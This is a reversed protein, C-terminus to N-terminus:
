ADSLGLVDILRERNSDWCKKCYLKQIRAFLTIEAFGEFGIYVPRDKVDESVERCQECCNQMHSMKPM